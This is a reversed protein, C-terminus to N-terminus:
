FLALQEVVPPTIPEAVPHEEVTPEDDKTASMMGLLSNFFELTRFKNDWDGMIHAPTYWLERQEMKLTDGLIVVAPIHLLSLQVYTMCVCLLDLDQATAHLLQQYNFKQEYMTKALAIVMGGAGCTPENVSVFGKQEIADEFGVLRAMLDSIHFPTFFQGVASNGVELAGFIDGLVDDFMVNEFEMVLLAFMECITNVEDKSYRKVIDLYRAERQEFQAKDVANAISIASMEVWDRFVQHRSHRQSLNIISKVIEKRHGSVQRSAKSSM